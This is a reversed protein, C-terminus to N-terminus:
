VVLLLGVKRGESLLVNYTRCAARSEMVEFGIRAEILPRLAEPKPFRHTAGSGIIVIEADLKTGEALAEADLLDSHTWPRAATAHALGISQTFTVEGVRVSGADYATITFENASERTFQLAM